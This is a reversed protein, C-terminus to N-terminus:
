GCALGYRGAAFAPGAVVLDPRLAAMLEVVEAAAAELREAVYNDGAVITGVVSGWDAIREALLHGPGVPVDLRRPRADAAEEGGVRGFFQNLYHVIRKM